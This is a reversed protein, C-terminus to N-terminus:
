SNAIVEISRVIPVDFVSADRYSVVPSESVVNQPPLQVDINSGAAASKGEEVM